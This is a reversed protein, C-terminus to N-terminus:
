LISYFMTAHYYPYTYGLTMHPKSPIEEKHLMISFDM